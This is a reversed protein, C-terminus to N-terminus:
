KILFYIGSVIEIIAIFKKTWNKGKQLVIKAGIFSGVAGFVVAILGYGLDISGFITFVGLASISAFFGITNAYFIAKTPEFNKLNIFVSRVIIGAGGGFFGRYFNVAFIVVYSFFDKLRPGIKSFLENKGKSFFMLLGTALMLIGVIKLAIAQDISVIFFAGLFGGVLALGVFVLIEKWLFEVSKRFALIATLSGTTVSLRNTGIAIAPSLGIFLMAPLVILSSGGSITGYVGAVFSVVALLIGFLLEVM